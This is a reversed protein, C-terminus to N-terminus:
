SVVKPRGVLSHIAENIKTIEGFDHSGFWKVAIQHLVEPKPSRIEVEGSARQIVFSPALPPNDPM